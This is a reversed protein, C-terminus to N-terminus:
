VCVREGESGGEWGKSEKETKSCGVERQLDDLKSKSAANSKEAKASAALREEANELALESQIFMWVVLQDTWSLLFVFGQCKLLKEKELLKVSDHWLGESLIFSTYKCREGRAALLLM